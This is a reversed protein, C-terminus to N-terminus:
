VRCPICECWDLDRGRQDLQSWCWLHLLVLYKIQVPWHTQTRFPKCVYHNWRPNLRECPTPHGHIQEWPPALIKV